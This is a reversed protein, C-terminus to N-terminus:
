KQYIHKGSNEEIRRMEMIQEMMEECAGEGAVDTSEIRMKRVLRSVNNPNRGLRKVALEKM